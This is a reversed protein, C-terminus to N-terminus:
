AYFQKEKFKFKSQFDIDWWVPLFVDLWEWIVIIHLMIKQKMKHNFQKVPQCIHINDYFEILNPSMMTM